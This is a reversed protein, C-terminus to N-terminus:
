CSLLLVMLSRPLKYETLWCTQRWAVQSLPPPVLLLLIYRLLLIGIYLMMVLLQVFGVSDWSLDVQTIRLYLWNCFQFVLCLLLDDFLIDFCPIHLHFALLFTYRILYYTLVHYTSSLLMYYQIAFKVEPLSDWRNGLLICTVRPLLHLDLNLMTFWLSSVM